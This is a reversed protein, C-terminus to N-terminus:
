TPRELLRYIQRRADAPLMTQLDPPEPPESMDYETEIGCVKPIAM